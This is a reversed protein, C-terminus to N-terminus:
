LHAKSYGGLQFREKQSGCVNIILNHGVVLGYRHLVEDQIQKNTKGLYERAVQKIAETKSINNNM